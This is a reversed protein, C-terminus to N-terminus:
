DKKLDLEFYLLEAGVSIPPKDNYAGIEEFGLDRYLAIAAELKKETDLRMAAYGQGKAFEIIRLSLARGLGRGRWAERLYLRKLECVGEEDLPRL